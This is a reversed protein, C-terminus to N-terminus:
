QVVFRAIAIDNGTAQRWTLGTVLVKGDAQVAIAHGTDPGPSLAVVSKADLRGLADFRLLVLDESVGDTSFPAAVLAHGDPLLLLGIPSPHGTVSAQEVVGVTEWAIGGSGYGTDLAGAPTFRAVVVESPTPYGIGDRLAALVLSGDAAAAARFPIIGADGTVTGATGFSPDNAGSADLRALALQTYGVDVTPDSGARGVSLIKGGPALAVAEARAYGAPFSSTAIGATGFTPDLAGNPQLRTAGFGGSQGVVVLADDPQVAMAGVDSTIATTVQAASGFAGDSDGHADIGLLTIPGERGTPPPGAVVIRGSSQLVLGYPAAIASSALAGNRFGPDLVGAADLRYLAGAAASTAGAIVIKGDAQVAIGLGRDDSAGLGSRIAGGTGFTADLTGTSTQRSLYVLQASQDNGVGFLTADPQVLLTTLRVGSAGLCGLGNAGFTTDLVGSTSYHVVCTGAPYFGGSALFSGDALLALTNASGGSTNFVWGNGSPGFTPDPTGDPALRALAFSLPATSGTTYSGAVVIKGDPQLVVANAEPQGGLVQGLVSGGTGFTTDWAGSSTLRSILFSHVVSGALVIKGDPQIAIGRAETTSGGMVVGQMGFTTDLAGSALFRRVALDGFDSGEVSAAVIAGDPQIALALTVSPMITYMQLAGIAIGRTAFGVDLSGDPLMRAVFTGRGRPADFGGGIVIKQDAQIAVAGATSSTGVPVSSIGAVGFSPDLAGSPTYRAVFMQGGGTSGVVVIKGDAQRAAAGTYSSSAGVNLAVVGGDGFGPDTAFVGVDPPGSPGSDKAGSTAADGADDGSADDGPPATDVGADRVPSVGDADDSRCATFLAAAALLSIAGPIAARRM